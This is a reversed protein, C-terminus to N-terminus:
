LCRLLFILYKSTDGSARQFVGNYSAFISQVSPYEKEQNLYDVTTNYIKKKARKVTKSRVIIHDPYVVYGLWDIGWHWPRLSIKYPHLTLKLKLRLFEAIIPIQAELWKKDNHALIFDDCYRLYVPAKSKEQVFHDFVNMYVNAFLQSTLNGLPLGSPFSLIINKVLDFLKKDKIQDSLLELLINRDINEFYKRIDCKLIYVQKTNNHSLKQLQIRLRSVSAHTGKGSRCSWSDYIFTQEFISEIIRVISHHVIRDEVSAKHIIRRKPDCVIFSQYEGHRWLGSQLKEQLTFLNQELNREFVQADFKNRKGKVFKKWAQFINEFSVVKEYLNESHSSRAISCQEVTYIIKQTEPM